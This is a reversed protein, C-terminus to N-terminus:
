SEKTSPITVTRSRSVMSCSRMGIASNRPLTIALVSIRFKNTPYIRRLDSYQFRRSATKKTLHFIPFRKYVNLENVNHPIFNLKTCPSSSHRGGPSVTIKKKNKKPKLGNKIRGFRSFKIFTGRLVNQKAFFELLAVNGSQGRQGLSEFSTLNNDLPVDADERYKGKRRRSFELLAKKRNRPHISRLSIKISPLM